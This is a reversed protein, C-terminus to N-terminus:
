LPSMYAITAMTPSPAQGHAKWLGQLRRRCAGGEARACRAVALAKYPTSGM